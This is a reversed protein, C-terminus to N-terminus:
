EPRGTSARRGSARHLRAYGEQFDPRTMLRGPHAAEQDLATELDMHMERTSRASPRPWARRRAACWATRSRRRRRPWASRRAGRPQLPRHPPGGRRRHVRRDDAARHRPRPGVMRPLLYAAGMDAGPWARGERLPVRDARHGRGRPLRLGARHRRGRRGRHREALGRDPQPLARMARILDCTMRTFELLAARTASCCSASSTRARRRGHLLGPRHRHHGGGAGAPPRALGRFTEILERYVEFTLANLREPRDLRLPPSRARGGTASAARADHADEELSRNLGAWCTACRSSTGRRAARSLLAAVDRRHRPLARQMLQRGAPPSASACPGATRPCRGGSWWAWARWGRGVIGTVNGATVLLERTLEGPTM